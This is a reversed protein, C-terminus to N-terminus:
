GKLYMIQDGWEVANATLNASPRVSLVGTNSLTIRALFPTAANYVRCDGYREQVPRAAAPLANSGSAIAYDSGATMAVGAPSFTVRSGRLRLTDGHDELRWAPTPHNADTVRGSDLTIDTWAAPATQVTTWTAGDTTYELERGAGADARFVFVPEDTDPVIGETALDSLVQTRETTNAVPIPDRVTLLAAFVGARSPTDEGDPITHRRADLSSM